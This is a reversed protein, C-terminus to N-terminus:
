RKLLYKLTKQLHLKQMVVRIDGLVRNKFPVVFFQSYFSKEDQANLLGFDIKSNRHNAFDASVFAAEINMELINMRSKIAKLIETKNDNWVIVRSLGEEEELNSNKPLAMYYDAITIDSWHNNRFVCNDCSPRSIKGHLFAYLYEDKQSILYVKRTSNRKLYTIETSPFSYGYEKSKFRIEKVKGYKEALKNKYLQFARPAAISHCLFDVTLLNDYSKGLYAKLGAVQCPTGSFCVLRNELLKAKITKFIDGLESQVYKSGLLPKVGESNEAIIHRVDFNDDYAAGIVIGGKEIIYNAITAFAGGSACKNIYEKNRAQALFYTRIGQKNQVTNIVPCSKECSHCGVCKDMNIHPYRFGAENSDLTIAGKACANYCATCGTCQNVEALQINNGM